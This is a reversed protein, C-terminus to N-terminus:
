GQTKAYDVAAQIYVLLQQAVNYKEHTEPYSAAIADVRDTLKLCSKANEGEGELIEIVLVDSMNKANVYLDIFYKQTEENYGFSARDTVDINNVLVTVTGEIASSANGYIRIGVANGMVLGKETVRFNTGSDSTASAEFTNLGNKNLDPSLEHPLEANSNEVILSFNHIAKALAVGENNGEWANQAIIALSKISFEYEWVEESGEFKVTETFDNAGIKALVISYYDNNWATLDDKTGQALTTTGMTFTFSFDDIADISAKDFLARVAIRETM